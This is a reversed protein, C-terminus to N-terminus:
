ASQESDTTAPHAPHPAATTAAPAPAVPTHPPAAAPPDPLAAPTDALDVRTEPLAIPTHPPAAASPEPLAAPTGPLLPRVLEASPAGTVVLVAFDRAALDTAIRLWERPDGGHRDPSTLVVGRVGRRFAALETLIRLRVAPPVDAIREGSYDVGGNSAGGAEAIVTAVAARSTSRGAYMLEETVVARLTLDAAPESVDPADVLAIREQVLGADEIGDITVSGTDPRMRGSLILALVTPRDGGEAEAISVRGSEFAVTTEPLPIGDHGKRVGRAIIKM